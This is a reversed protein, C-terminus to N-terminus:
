STIDGLYHRWLIYLSNRAPRLAEQNATIAIHRWPQRQPHRVYRGAKLTTPSKTRTATKRSPRSYHSHLYIVQQKSPNTDTAQTANDHLAALSFSAQSSALLRQGWQFLSLPPSAPRQLSLSLLTPTLPRFNYTTNAVTGGGQRRRRPCLQQWAPSPTKSQVPCSVRRPSSLGCSWSPAKLAQPLLPQM